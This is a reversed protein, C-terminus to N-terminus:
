GEKGYKRLLDRVAEDALEEVTRGQEVALLRLRRLLAGDLRTGWKKKADTTDMFVGPTRHGNKTDLLRAFRPATALLTALLM